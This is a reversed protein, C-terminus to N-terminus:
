PARACGGQLVRPLKPQFSLRDKQLESKNDGSSVSEYVVRPKKPELAAELAGATEGNMTTKGM